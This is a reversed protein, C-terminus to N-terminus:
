FTQTINYIPVIIAFVIVAVVIGILVIAVPEVLSAIGKIQRDTEELYHDSLREFVEDIKGTQEGVSVMQGIMSPFNENKVLPASFPVGREVEKAAVKLGRKFVENNMTDATINIAELLPIGTRALIEFTLTMRTIETNTVLPGFVPIKLKLKSWAYNGASSRIYVRFLFYAIIIVALVVWWYSALFNSVAIVARTTWPLGVATDAFIDELQPIVKIMMLAGIVIIAIVIFAPYLMANKLKSSFGYDRELESAVDKLVEPLRGSAEGAKVVAIFVTNFVDTHKAMATSLSLGSEVDGGVENIVEKFYTNRTQSGIVKLADALNYGAGTMTALQRAFIAKDQVKVSRFFNEVSLQWHKEEELSMVALGKKELTKTANELDSAMITGQEVQGRENKATYLYKREEAM